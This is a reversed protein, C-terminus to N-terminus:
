SFAACTALGMTACRPHGEQVRRPLPHAPRALSVSHRASPAGQNPVQHFVAWLPGFKRPPHFGQPRLEPASLFAPAQALDALDLLRSFHNLTLLIIKM